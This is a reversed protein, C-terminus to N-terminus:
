SRHRRGANLRAVEAQAWQWGAESKAQHKPWDKPEVACGQRILPQGNEDASASFSARARFDDGRRLVPAEADYPGPPGYFFDCTAILNM